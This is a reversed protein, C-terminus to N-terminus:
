SWLQGQRQGAAPHAIWSWPQMSTRGCTRGINWTRASRGFSPSVSLLTSFLQVRPKAPSVGLIKGKNEASLLAMSTWPMPAVGSYTAGHTTSEGAAAGSTGARPQVPIQVRPVPFSVISMEKNDSSWAVRRGLRTTAQFTVWLESQNRADSTTQELAKRCARSRGDSFVLLDAHGRKSLMFKCCHGGLDDKWEPARAWAAGGGSEHLLDCSMLFVRHKEGVKGEQWLYAATTQYALDMEKETFTRPVVFNVYKERLTTAAAWVRERERDKLAKEEREDDSATSKTKM